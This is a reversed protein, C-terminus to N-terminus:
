CELLKLVSTHEQALFSKLVHDFDNENTRFVQREIHSRFDETAGRNAGRTLTRSASSAAMVDLSIRGGEPTRMFAFEELIDIVIVYFFFQPYTFSGQRQIRKVVDLFLNSYKPWAYQCMVILHGLALDNQLGASFIKAKLATIILEICYAVLDAKAAPADTCPLLQVLRGPTVPAAESPVTCFLGSESPPEEPRLLSLIFIVREVASSYKGLCFLSSALQLHRRLDEKKSRAPHVPNTVANAAESFMGQYISLDIHFENFWTWTDSRWSALLKQLDKQINQHSNLLEYCKLATLFDAVVRIEDSACSAVCQTQYKSAVHIAPPGGIAGPPAGPHPTIVPNHPHPHQGGAFSEIMVLPVSSTTDTAPSPNLHVFQEQSIAYMYESVCHLFLVITVYLLQKYAGGSPDGYNMNQYLALIKKWQEERTALKFIDKSATWGLEVGAVNIIDFLIAWPDFPTAAVSSAATSEPDGETTTQLLHPQTIYNTCFDISKQIWRYLNKQTSDSIRSLVVPLVDCVLMKRHINVPTPEVSREQQNRQQHFKETSILKEILTTGHEQMLSPFMELILLKVRAHEIVDTCRDAVKLLMVEQVNPPLSKFLSKHFNDTNDKIDARLSEVIASLEEWLRGENEFDASFVLDKLLLGAQKVNGAAKEIAYAEFQISFEKPFLTKATILWAKAAPPDTILYERAKSVLLNLPELSGGSSTPQVQVVMTLM